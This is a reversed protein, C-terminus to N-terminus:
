CPVPTVGARTHRAQENKIHQKGFPDNPKELFAVLKQKQGEELEKRYVKRLHERPMSSLRAPKGGHSIISGSLSIYASITGHGSRNYTTVEAQTAKFKSKPM